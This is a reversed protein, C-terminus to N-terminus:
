RRIAQWVCEEAADLAEPTMEMHGLWWAKQLGVFAGWAIAMLVEPAVPKLAEVSQLQEVFMKIPGLMELEIEHSRADLYDGHHHLEMFAMVTPHRAAFAHLRKWFVGFLRRPPLTSDIEGLLAAGFAQKWKQYVANVIAEKSPFYRYVTGAGVKAREAILPVPTGHFGREAFMSLAASLIAERKPSDDTLAPVITM